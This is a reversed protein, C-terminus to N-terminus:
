PCFYHHSHIHRHKWAEAHAGVLTYIMIFGLNNLKNNKFVTNHSLDHAFNFGFLVSLIGFGVYCFIFTITPQITFIFYYVLILLSFYFVFKMLLLSVTARGNPKLQEDVSQHLLKLLRSDSEINIHRDKM